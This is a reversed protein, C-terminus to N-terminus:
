CIVISSFVTVLLHEAVEFVPNLHSHNETWVVLERDLVKISRIAVGPIKFFFSTKFNIIVFM